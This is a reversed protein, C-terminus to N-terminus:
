ACSNELATDRDCHRFSRWGHDHLSRRLLLLLRPPSGLLALKDKFATRRLLASTVLLMWLRCLPQRLSTWTQTTALLVLNLRPTTHVPRSLWQVIWTRSGSFTVHSGSPHLCQGSYARCREMAADNSSPHPFESLAVLLAVVVVCVVCALASARTGGGDQRPPPGCPHTRTLVWLVGSYVRASKPGSATPLETWLCKVLGFSSGWPLTFDRFVRLFNCREFSFMSEM